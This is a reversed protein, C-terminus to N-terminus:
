EIMIQYKLAEVDVEVLKSVFRDILWGVLGFGILGVVFVSWVLWPTGPPSPRSKGRSSGTMYKGAGTM